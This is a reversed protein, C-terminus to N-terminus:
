ASPKAPSKRMSARARPPTSRCCPEARLWAAPRFASSAWRTLLSAGILRTNGVWRSPRFATRSGTAQRYQQAEMVDLLRNFGNWIGDGNPLARIGAELNAAQHRNGRLAEAFKAGGSQNEGGSALRQAAENRINPYNPHVLAEKLINLLLYVESNNM